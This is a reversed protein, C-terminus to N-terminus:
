CKLIYIHTCEQSASIQTNISIEADTNSHTDTHIHLFIHSSKTIFSIDRSIHRGLDLALSLSFM